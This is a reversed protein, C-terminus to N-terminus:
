HFKSVKEYVQIITEARTGWAYEGEAIKRAKRGLKIRLNEDEILMLLKQIFDDLDDPKALAGTNKIIKRIEEFDYTLIAKGSALYEFIKIPCWWFGIRELERFRSTNFPAILIDSAALFKPIEDHKKPGTLIIDRNDKCKEYIEDYLPGMGVLMFKVNKRHIKDAIAIIDQVGHWERFAGVFTILIEDDCIGYRARIDSELNPKFFNTDVGNPVVYIPKETHRELIRKLTETQTIIVDCRRFKKKIFYSYIKGKLGSYLEIGPDNVELVYKRDGIFLLDIPNIHFREHIIDLDKIRKKIERYSKIYEIPNRKLITAVMPLTVYITNLEEMGEFEDRSSGIFLSVNVGKESLSKVINYTHVFGAHPGNFTESFAFYGVKM